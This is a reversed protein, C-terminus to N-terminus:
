SNCGKSIIIKDRNKIHPKGKTYKLIGGYFLVTLIEIQSLISGPHGQKANLLMEFSVKRLWNAKKELNEINM